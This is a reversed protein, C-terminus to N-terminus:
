LKKINFQNFKLMLNQINEPLEKVLKNKKSVFLIDYTKKAEKTLNGSEDFPFKHTWKTYEKAFKSAVLHIFHSLKKTEKEVMEKTVNVKLHVKVIKGFDSAEILKLINNEVEEIAEIKVVVRFLEQKLYEESYSEEVKAQKLEYLENYFEDYLENFRKQAEETYYVVQEEKDYITSTEFEKKVITDAKETAIMVLDEYPTDAISPQTVNEM